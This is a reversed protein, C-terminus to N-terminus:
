DVSDDSRVVIGFKEPNNYVYFNSVYRNPNGDYNHVDIVKLFLDKYKRVFQKEPNYATLKRKEYPIHYTDFLLINRTGCYPCVFGFRGPLWFDGGSCGHPEVYWYTQIAETEKIVAKVRCHACEIGKESNQVDIASLLKARKAELEVLKQELGELEEKLDM